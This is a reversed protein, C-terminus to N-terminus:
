ARRLCATAESFRKELTAKSIGQKDGYNDVLERIIAAGSDRGSRPSQLLELMAGIINLYTTRERPTVSAESESARTMVVARLESRIAYGKQEAWMAFKGLYVVPDDLWSPSNNPANFDVIGVSVHNFALAKLVTFDTDDYGNFDEPDHGLTLTIALDLPVSAWRSWFDVSDAYSM